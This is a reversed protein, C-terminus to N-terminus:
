ARGSKEHEPGLEPDRWQPEGLNLDKAICDFTNRMLLMFDDKIAKDKEAISMRISALLTAGDMTALDAWYCNWFEGEVRFALRGIKTPNSM